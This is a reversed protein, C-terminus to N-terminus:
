GLEVRVLEVLRRLAHRVAATEPHAVIAWGEGEYGEGKPDGPAPLRRDVVLAGVEAQAEALGHVAVVRGRGQGRFFAVGAAQRRVPPTFRDHVVLEAWRAVMDAGHAHGMLPMIQVGPPRAGVESVVARGDGARFWEMHSLGTDMGLARLAAENTPAFPAHDAEERPLLVCYQMWPNELVELPGPLYHTGSRWVGRGHVSVTECTHETGTVFEEAQVPRDPAPWACAARLEEETRVRFTSKSGLGDPPKVIIPLGVEDAFARLEAGSRALRHRAVPVGAARLVEKMRDKERFNRAVGEGMGALGAFGAARLRDRAIGLPIQLQELAGILRDLGGLERALSAAAAAIQEPDSPDRVRAARIGHAAWGDGGSIVAARVGPLGTVARVYRLTNERLAPAVYIVAREM